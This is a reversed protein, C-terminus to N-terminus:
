SQSLSLQWSGILDGLPAECARAAATLPDISNCFLMAGHTGGTFFAYYFGASQAYGSAVGNADLNSAGGVVSDLWSTADDPSSFTFAYARVEMTLDSNLAYDGYVFDTVGLQHFGDVVPQPTSVNLSAVAAEVPLRAVGVLTVDNGPPPLLRTDSAAVPSPKVKGSTVNKLKNALTNAIKALTNLDSYGQDRDWEISIV